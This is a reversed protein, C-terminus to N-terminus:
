SKVPMLLEVAFSLPMVQVSGSVPLVALFAVKVEVGIAVWALEIVLM